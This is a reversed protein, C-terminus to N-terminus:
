DDPGAETFYGMLGLLVFVARVRPQLGRLLFRTGRKRAATLAIALAGVGTSSIYGVGELDVVLRTRGPQNEIIWCLLSQLSTSSEMDLPGSLRVVLGREDQDGAVSMPSGARFYGGIASALDM